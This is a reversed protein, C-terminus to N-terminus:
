TDQVFHSKATNCFSFNLIHKCLNLQFPMRYRPDIKKLLTPNQICICRWMSSFRNKLFVMSTQFMTKYSAGLRLFLFINWYFKKSRFSSGEFLWKKKAWFLLVRSRTEITTIKIMFIEVCYVKCTLFFEQRHWLSSFFNKFLVEISDVYKMIVLLM